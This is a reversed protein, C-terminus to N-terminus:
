GKLEAQRIRNCFVHQILWMSPVSSSSTRACVEGHLGQVPELLAFKFKYAPHLIYIYIIQLKNYIM